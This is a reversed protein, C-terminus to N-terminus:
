IQIAGDTGFSLADDPSHPSLIPLESGETDISLYDIQAPAKYQVLLDDLSVTEVQYEIPAKTRDYSDSQAFQTATSLEGCDTTETFAITEGTMSWVCRNDVACAPRNALLQPAFTRNPECLIGTWGFEKELVKSWV